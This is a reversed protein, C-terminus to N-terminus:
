YNLKTWSVDIGENIYNLSEDKLKKYEADSSYISIILATEKNNSKRLARGIRQIRQRDATSASLILAADIDPFDFGEDLGRCSVIVDLMDEKFERLNRKRINMSLDTNYIASRFGHKDLFKNFLAAQKKSESFVIWKKRINTEMLKVGLPIRNFSNNIIRAREFLLLKLGNDTKDFGGLISIKKNIKKSIEQYDEDETELLPAYANILNFNSIIKDKYANLYDYSYIIEGLIPVIIDEYNDDFEREPTASLGLRADFQQNLMKFNRETGIKHCEDIVLLTNLPNIKKFINKLSGITTINIKNICEIKSGGGNVSLQSDYKSNLIVSWQDLLTISPVIILINNDPNKKLYDDICHIAFFTKGGGTVVKIIGSNSKRWIQFAEKQWKRLTLSM